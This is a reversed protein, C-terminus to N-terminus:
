IKNIEYKLKDMAFIPFSKPKDKFLMQMPFTEISNFLQLEVLIKALFKIAFLSGISPVTMIVSLCVFPLPCIPLVQCLSSPFFKVNEIM